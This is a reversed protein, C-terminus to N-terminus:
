VAGIEVLLKIGEGRHLAHYGDDLVRDFPIERVWGDLPYAGEGMLRLVNPFDDNAYGCSTTVTGEMLIMSTPNFAFPTPYIAIVVVTGHISISSLAGNFAPEVGAADIAAEVGRGGTLDLVKEAADDATPDILTAGGFSQIVRRREANPEVVFITALDLTRLALFAGIGIPGTGFLAASAGPMLGARQVGHYGVALPETLAGQVLSVSDPLRHVSAETVVVYEANSGPAALGYYVVDRGLNYNRETRSGRMIPEITVRDGRGISTVDEGVDTVVGAAEHGVVLPLRCGTRPHPETPIFIPGEYYEHLDSGCIGNYAVEVKVEHPGPAPEAVEEFRLDERGHYVYARV